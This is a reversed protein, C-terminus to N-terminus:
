AADAIIRVLVKQHDGASERLDGRDPRARRDVNPMRKKGVHVAKGLTGTRELIHVTPDSGPVGAGSRVSVVRRVAIHLSGAGTNLDGARSYCLNAISRPNEKKKNQLYNFFVFQVSNYSVFRM